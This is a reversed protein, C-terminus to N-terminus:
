TQNNKHFGKVYMCVYMCLERRNKAWAYELVCPTATVVIWNWFKLVLIESLSRKVQAFGFIVEQMYTPVKLAAQVYTCLLVPGKGNFRCIQKQWKKWKDSSIIFLFCNNTPWQPESKSERRKILANLDVLCRCKM